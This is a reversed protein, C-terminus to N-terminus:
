ENAEFDCRTVRIVWWVNRDKFRMNKLLIINERNKQMYLNLTMMKEEEIKCLEGIM